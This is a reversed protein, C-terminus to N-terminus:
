KQFLHPQTRHACVLTNKMLMAITMPGVGGPVPTIAGAVEKASAYHVDGVLRYGAKKTADDVSNIGVDIVTAGPKIWSGQVMEARGCAAVLIDAERVIGELNVSKSHCITVTANRGLLLHAVPIGVIRSRGVVVARKGEIEIGHRDLLEICGAPTCAVVYPLKSSVSLAAVNMPHLGDVDKGPVIHNLVSEEDLHRPLPLQVLIGHVTPDNNLADIEHILADYAIDVPLNISVTRYGLQECAKKKMRVYTASDKRDGVLVVALGPVVYDAHEAVNKQVEAKLEELITAGIAKGDIIITMIAFHSNSDVVEVHKIRIRGHTIDPDWFICLQM